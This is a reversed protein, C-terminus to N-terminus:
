IRQKREPDSAPPQAPIQASSAAVTERAEPVSPEVCRFEPDTPTYEKVEYSPPPKALKKTPRKFEICALIDEWFLRSEPRTAASTLRFEDHGMHCNEESSAEFARNFLLILVDPKRRSTREQHDQHIPHDNVQCIIDLDSPETRM